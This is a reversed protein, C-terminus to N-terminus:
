QRNGAGKKPLIMEVVTGQGPQSTFGISGGHMRLIQYCVTLGLGTGKAKTTFFPDFIRELDEKTIGMGNDKICVKLSDTDHEAMIEIMGKGYPIADCANNLLNSFTEQIQLVDAEILVNKIGEIQRRFVINGDSKREALNICEELTLYVEVNKFDPNRVRTYFLLNNIIQDSETIKKDITQLHRELTASLESDKAKRQINATAIAIAALPNRLEHAVTAALQGIDSLRKTRELEMRVKLLEETREKVLHEFVVKDRELVEQAKKIQTIDAGTTIFYEGLPVSIFRFHRDLHPFYDEFSYPVNENIIKEVVPKFHDMAGPGFIDETTKDKVQALSKGWSKLTPPNADVLRWTKIQGQEDRVLKWLHVEETLNMFLNRYKGESLRLEEVAKMHQSQLRITTIGYSLDNALEVLLEVEKPTFPDPEKSYITIVAFVKGANILPLAISSAYGRKLAEKRWLIYKPDKLMNRCIDPKGTRIATGTPGQGSPADEFGAQAMPQVTKADDNQVYGIWVMSHGCDKIIIKCVENLYEEENRAHMMAQNSYSIAKLTRNLKKLEEEIRKRETIDNLTIIAHMAGDITVPDTSVDFWFSNEKGDAILVTSAEVHLVPQGTSFVSEFSNRIPCLGCHSSQGCPLADNISHLCGLLDGPQIDHDAPLEKKTWRRVVDNIRKVAGQKDVLIMGVNVVDFIKQLNGREQSLKRELSDRQLYTERLAEQREYAASKAKVRHYLEALVSMLVGMGIFVLLGLFDIPSSIVVQGAPLLIWYVTVYSALTTAWLGPGFGALMAVTIVAPYFTIYASLGPGFHWALMARLWFAVAVAVVPLSYPVVLSLPTQTQFSALKRWFLAGTFKKMNKHIIMRVMVNM